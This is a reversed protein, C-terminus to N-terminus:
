HYDRWPLSVEYRKEKLTISSIFRDHVSDDPGQLGLSELEWFSRLVADPEEDGVTNVQLTQTTLSVTPKDGEVTEAPGSLVWGLKTSIAMPGCQGQITEGTVLDWYLELGILM